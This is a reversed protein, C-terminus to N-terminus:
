PLPHRDFGCECACVCLCVRVRARVDRVRLCEGSCMAYLEVQKATWSPGPIGGCDWESGTGVSYFWYATETRFDRPCHGTHLHTSYKRWAAFAFMAQLCVSM